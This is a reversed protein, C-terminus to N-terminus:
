PIKVQNHRQRVQVTQRPQTPRALPRHRRRASLPQAVSSVSSVPADSVSPGVPLHDMEAPATAASPQSPPPSSQAASVAKRRTILNSM